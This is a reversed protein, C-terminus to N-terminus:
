AGGEGNSISGVHTPSTPTSIDIIELADSNYSAVYAYNDKVFVGYPGNLLAGGEGNSISGVHTPSTPTSIDIIELADSNYSAVYAYNDKVFVSVASGLLAGGDGSVISGEHTPNSPTSVDIIELADSNYSAVYAYLNVWPDSNGNAPLKMYRSHFRTMVSCYLDVPISTYAGLHRFVTNVPKISEIANVIQERKEYEWSLNSVSQDLDVWVIFHPTPYFEKPIASVSYSKQSVDGNVWKGGESEPLYNDTYYQSVDGILGFSYLMIKISNDTTKISYWLPLNRIAFRMYKEVNVDPCTASTSLEALNGLEGKNINIDYGLNNAFYQLYDQNMLDPDQLENLRNIKDLVSIEKTNISEPPIYVIKKSSM